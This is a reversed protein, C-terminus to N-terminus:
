GSFLDKFIGKLSDHFKEKKFITGKVSTGNGKIQFRVRRQTERDLECPYLIEYKTITM